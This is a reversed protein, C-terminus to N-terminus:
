NFDEVKTELVPPSRRSIYTVMAVEERFMAAGLCKSGVSEQDVTDNDNINTEQTAKNVTTPFWTLVLRIQSSVSVSGKEEM